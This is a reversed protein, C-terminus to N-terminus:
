LRTLQSQDWNVLNYGHILARVDIDATDNGIMETFFDGKMVTPNGVLLENPYVIEMEDEEAMGADMELEEDGLVIDEETDTLEEDDLDIDLEEETQLQGDEGLGSEALASLPAHTLVLVLILLLSLYRKMSYMISVGKMNKM